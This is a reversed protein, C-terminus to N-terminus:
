QPLDKIIINRYPERAYKRVGEYIIDPIPIEVLRSEGTKKNLLSEMGFDVSAYIEGSVTGNLLCMKDKGQLQITYNTATKNYSFSSLIYYGMNFWIVEPYNPEIQNELGIEIKIKTNLSWNVSDELNTELSSAV